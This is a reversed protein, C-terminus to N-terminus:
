TSQPKVTRKRSSQGSKSSQGSQDETHRRLRGRGFLGRGSHPVPGASLNGDAIDADAGPSRGSRFQPASSKAYEFQFMLKGRLRVPRITVRRLGDERRHRTDTLAASVMEGGFAEMLADM